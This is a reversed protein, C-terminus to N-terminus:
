DEDEDDTDSAGQVVRRSAIETVSLSSIDEGNPGATQTRTVQLPLKSRVDLVGSFYPPTGMTDLPTAAALLEDCDIM